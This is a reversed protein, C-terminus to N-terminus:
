IELCWETCKTGISGIKIHNLGESLGAAQSVM